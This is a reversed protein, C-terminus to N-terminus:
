SMSDEFWLKTRFINKGMTNEWYWVNSLLSCASTHAYDHARMSTFLSSEFYKKLDHEKTVCM